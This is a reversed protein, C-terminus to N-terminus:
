RLFFDVTADLAVAISSLTKVLVNEYKGNEIASITARSLKSKEALVDQNMRLDKRRQRIREGVQKNM